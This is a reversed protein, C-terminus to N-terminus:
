KRTLPTLSNRLAPTYVRDLTARVEDELLAIEGELGSWDTTYQISDPPIVAEGESAFTLLESVLDQGFFERSTAQEQTVSDALSARLFGVMYDVPSKAPPPNRENPGKPREVPLKTWDGKCQEFQEVVQKVEPDYEASPSPLARAVPLKCFEFAAHSVELQDFAYQHAFCMPCILIGPYKRAVFHGDRCNSRCLTCSVDFTRTAPQSVAVDLFPAADILQSFDNVLRVDCPSPTISGLFTGMFNILGWNAIFHHVREIFNVNGGWM